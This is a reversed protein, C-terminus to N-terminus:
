SESLRYGTHRETHKNRLPHLFIACELSTREPEAKEVETRRKHPAKKEGEDGSPNKCGHNGRSLSNKGWIDILNVGWGMGEELKQAFPLVLVGLPKPYIGGVRRKRHIGWLHKHILKGWVKGLILVEWRRNSQTHTDNQWETVKNYAYIQTVVVAVLIRFWQTVVFRERAREMSVGVPQKRGDKVELWWGDTKGRQFTMKLSFYICSDWFTHSRKLNAKKM